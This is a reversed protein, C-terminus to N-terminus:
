DGAQDIEEEIPVLSWEAWKRAKIIEIVWYFFLYVLCAIGSSVLVYSVTASNKDIGYLPRLLMGAAYLGLGLFTMFTVRDLVTRKEKGAFLNGILMGAIVTATRSGFAEKLDSFPGLW